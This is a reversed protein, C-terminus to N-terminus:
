NLKEIKRKIEQNTFHWYKFPASCLADGIWLKDDSDSLLIPDGLHLISLLLAWRQEEPCNKFKGFLEIIIAENRQRTDASLIAALVDSESETEYLAALETALLKAPLWGALEVAVKRNLRNASAFANKLFEDTASPDLRRLVRGVNACFGKREVKIVADFLLTAATEPTTM